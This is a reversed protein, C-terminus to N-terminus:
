IATENLYINKFETKDIGSVFASSYRTPKAVLFSVLTPTLEHEGFAIEFLIPNDIEAFKADVNTIELCGEESM